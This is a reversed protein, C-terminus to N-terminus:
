PQLVSGPRMGVVFRILLGIVVALGFTCVLLPGTPIDSRFSAVVGTVLAVAGVGWAIWLAVGFRSTFLFAVVGPIVLSSFVMLVGAVPVSFSIVIGFLLYFLFDWARARPREAEGLSISLFPKRFIFYIVGLVTYVIAMRIIEPWGVWILTGTLTEAIHEAGEATFGAILIVAASAVVFTIGIVAEQPVVTEEFRSFSFILAGILTFGLSFALSLPTEHGVGMLFGVTAGLAAIQAFALDVFIVGRAIVHLGLYTHISLIVLGAAIPPIMLDLM